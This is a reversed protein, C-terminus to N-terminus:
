LLEQQGQTRNFWPEGKHGRLPNRALKAAEYQSVPITRGILAAPWGKLLPIHAGLLEATKNTFSGRDSRCEEILEETLMVTRKDPTNM